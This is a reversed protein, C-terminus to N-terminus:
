RVVLSGLLPSSGAVEAQILFATILLISLSVGVIALVGHWRTLVVALVAFAIALWLLPSRRDLRQLLLARCGTAGPPPAVTNRTVRVKAGAAPDTTLEVPGLAIPPHTRCADAFAHSAGASDSRALIAGDLAAQPLIRWRSSWCTCM